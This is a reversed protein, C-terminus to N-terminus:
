ELQWCLFDSPKVKASNSTGKTMDINSLRPVQVFGTAISWAHLINNQASRETLTCPLGSPAAAFWHYHSHITQM